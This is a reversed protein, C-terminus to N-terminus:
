EAVAKCVPNPMSWDAPLVLDLPEWAPGPLEIRVTECWQCHASDAIVHQRLVHASAQRAAALSTATICPAGWFQNARLVVQVLVWQSPYRGSVDYENRTLYFGGRGSDLTCKVELRFRATDGCESSDIDYGYRDSIRSVRVAQRRRALESALVIEEGIDGIVQRVPDTARTSVADGVLVDLDDGLWALDAQADAPILAALSQSGLFPVILWDPPDLELLIRAIM